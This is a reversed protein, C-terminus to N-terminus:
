FSGLDDGSANSDDRAGARVRQELRPTHSAAPTPRWTSTRRQLKSHTVSATRTGTRTNDTAAGGVLRVLEEVIAKVTQAQASLQEAAAASEEAGSANQQTVKDMQAVAGNIQEVGQAQELSAQAMQNVLGTVKSACEGIKGFSETTRKNLEVGSGVRAVTEAILDSTEGAAQAARMALNRVEDAVVAFGKGHEGARAAEVAANLALLNTQFAIEEIVKIIKSIRESSDSIAQMAQSTERMAVDAEEIIESANCMSSDTQKANDANQRASAAMEELAGSTEELSSAQESAGDALQQSAASVQGAADNVQDAGDNLSVIIRTLARIIRRSVIVALLAGVLVAVGGVVSVNRRTDQAAALMVEDTMVHERIEKRVQGLLEQVRALSPKTQTAFVANAKQMGELAKSAHNQCAGLVMRTEDLAPLTQKQFIEQAQQQAEVLAGEAAIAAYFSEAVADLAPVTEATYVQKATATDGAAFAEKIKVASEHLRAHPERCADLAAQLAPFESCWTGCQSSDLFKGFACQTPDTEVEFGADEQVCARCVKATWQRHDDLRAALTDALGEHRQKWVNQIAVASEHLRRHPDEIAALLHAFEPDRAAARQAEEGHLWKGFTCQTPDTQVNLEPLNHLFLRSVNEAWVLHDVERACLKGPLLADAPKFEEGIEIASAHLQDHYREIEKLLPAISPIQQEAAKREDGYLWQGFACARPDTQVNLTTVDEDTLLASVNNAWVLHDVEKQAMTGDLRNGSIVEKANEVIGGVGLVSLIGVGLVFVIVVGFGYGIQKGITLNRFVSM